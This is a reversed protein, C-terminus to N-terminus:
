FSSLKRDGPYTMGDESFIVKADVQDDLWAQEEEMDSELFKDGFHTIIVTSSSSDELIKPVESLSLHGRINGERPRNCNIILTDCDEYFELLEDSYASDTWFGFVKEGDSIKLGRCKPESHFMEQSEIKVDRLEAQEKETLNVIRTCQNQHYNSVSQQIDGYGNLVSEPAMLKCPNEQIVSILEIIPEADSYHDLHSHTVILGELNEIEYNQAKVLAGPGPDIYISAEDSELILGATDRLQKGMAYRGGATGLFHLKMLFVQPRFISIAPNTVM